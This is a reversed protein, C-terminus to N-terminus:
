YFHLTKYSEKQKQLSYQECIWIYSEMIDFSRM